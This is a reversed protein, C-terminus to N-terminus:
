SHKYAKHGFGHCFYCKPGRLRQQNARSATEGRGKNKWELDQIRNLVYKEDLAKESSMINDCTSSYEDQLGRIFWLVSAEQVSIVDSGNMEIFEDRMEKIEKWAELGSQTPGQSWSAMEMLKTAKRTKISQLYRERLYDWKEGATEHRMTSIITSSTLGAEMIMTAKMDARNWGADTDLIHIYEDRGIENYLQIAQLAYQTRLQQKIVQFWYRSNGENLKNVTFPYIKIPKEEVLVRKAPGIPKNALNTSDVEMPDGDRKDERDRPLPVNAPDSEVM